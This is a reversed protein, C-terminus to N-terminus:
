DNSTNTAFPNWWNRAPDDAYGCVFQVDSIVGTVLGAGAGIAASFALVALLARGDDGCRCCSGSNGIAGVMMAPGVVAGVFPKALTCGGSGLSIACLAAITALRRM